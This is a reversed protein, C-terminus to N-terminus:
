PFHDFLLLSCIVYSFIHKVRLGLVRGPFKPSKLSYYINEGIKIPKSGDCLLFDQPGYSNSNREKGQLISRDEVSQAMSRLFLLQLYQIRESVVRQDEFKGFLSVLHEDPADFSLQCLSPLPAPNRTPKLDETEEYLFTDPIPAMMYLPNDFNQPRRQLPSLPSLSCPAPPEIGPFSLTRTLKKRPVPPPTGDSFFRM